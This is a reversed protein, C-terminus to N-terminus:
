EENFLNEQTPDTYDVRGSILTSSDIIELLDDLIDLTTQADTVENEIDNLEQETDRRRMELNLLEARVEKVQRTLSDEINSVYEEFTETTSPYDVYIDLYNFLQRKEPPVLKDYIEAPHM